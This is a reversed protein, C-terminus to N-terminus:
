FVRAKEAFGAVDVSLPNLCARALCDVHIIGGRFFNDAFNRFEATWFSAASDFSRVRGEVRPALFRCFFAGGDEAAPEIQHHGVL